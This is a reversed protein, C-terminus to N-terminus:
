LSLFFYDVSSTGFLGGPILGSPLAHYEPLILDVAMFSVITGLAGEWIRKKKLSIGKIFLIFILYLGLNLILFQLIPNLSSIFTNFSPVLILSTLVTVGIISLFLYILESKQFLNSM